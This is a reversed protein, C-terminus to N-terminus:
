QAGGGHDRVLFLHVLRAPGLAEGEFVAATATPFGALRGAPDYGGVLDLAYEHLGPNHGIILLRQASQAAAIMALREVTAHYLAPEMQAEVGPLAPKAAEWTEVARRATSVLALDPALGQEALVQGIIAADSRGRETLARDFDRGAPGGPETKAHRLLILQPM